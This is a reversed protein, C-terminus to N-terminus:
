YRAEPELSLMVSHVVQQCKGAAGAAIMEIAGALPEHRAFPGASPHHSGDM